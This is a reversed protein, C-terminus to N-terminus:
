KLGAKTIIEILRETSIGASSENKGLVFNSDEKSINDALIAFNVKDREDYLMLGATLRLEINTLVSKNRELRRENSSYLRLFFVALTGLIIIISFSPLYNILFTWFDNSTGSGGLFLLYYLYSALLIVGLFAMGIGIRLNSRNRAQLRQEEKTLRKHSALLYERWDTFPKGDKDRLSEGLLSEYEQRIAFAKRRLEKKSREDSAWVIQRLIDAQEASFQSALEQNVKEDSSRIDFPSIILIFAFAFLASNIIVSYPNFGFIYYTESSEFFWQFIWQIIWALAIIIALQVLVSTRKKELWGFFSRVM